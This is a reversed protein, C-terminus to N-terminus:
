FASEFVFISATGRADLTVSAVDFRVTPAAEDSAVLFAEALLRLKRQKKWHVAEFPGGFGAGTRSKVECFVLMPGKAVILDIEGFRCRWNRAVVRYGARRYHALAAAEGARGVELHSPPM